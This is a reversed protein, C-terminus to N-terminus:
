RRQSELIGGVAARLDDVDFPKDFVLNAGMQLALEHTATDGFGTILIVPTHWPLGRVAALVEIGTYGPMRIDSIVLDFTRADADAQLRHLLERGDRAEHVRHGDQGLVLSLLSRLETDDEALLICASHNSM